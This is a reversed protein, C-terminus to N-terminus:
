DPMLSLLLRNGPWPPTSSRISLRVAAMGTNAASSQSAPQPESHAGHLLDRHQPRGAGDAETRQIHDGTMGPTILHEGQATKGPQRLQLRQTHLMVRAIGHHRISLRRTFQLASQTSGTQHGFHQHPLCPQAGHGSIRGDVAHHSGNNTSGPEPRRQSRHLGALFHQQGVLLRQHHRAGQEHLGDPLAPRHQQGDVALVVGNELTQGAVICATQLCDAHATHQQRSGAPWEALRRQSLQLMDRRFLGTCM